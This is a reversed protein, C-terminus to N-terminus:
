IHKRLLDEVRGEISAPEETGASSNPIILLEEPTFKSPLLRVQPLSGYSLGVEFGEQLDDLTAPGSYPFGFARCLFGMRPFATKPICVSYLTDCKVSSALTLTKKSIEKTLTNESIYKGVTRKLINSVFLPDSTAINRGQSFFDLASELRETNELYVDGSILETSYSYDAQFKLTNKFDEVTLDSSIDDRLPEFFVHKPSEFREQMKKRVMNTVVLDTKQAHNVVYHTDKLAERLEISRGGAALLNTKKGIDPRQKGIKSLSYEVRKNAKLRELEQVPTQMQIQHLNQVTSVPKRVPPEQPFFYEYLNKIREVPSHPLIRAVTGYNVAQKSISRTGLKSFNIM